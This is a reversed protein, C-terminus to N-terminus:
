VRNCRFVHLEYRDVEGVKWGGINQNFRSAGSFMSSMDTVTSVDWSGIFRNFASASEFMFSMDTVEGVEWDRINQNFETAGSFMFSMDTVKDVDWGGINQNFAPAFEFMFSMDTVKDVDWGGINQNFMSAGSFMFRMNTVNDVDWGGINQNFMSAGSFMSSMDTVNDVDWDGIDGNFLVARQFMHSMDTVQSLDPTDKATYYRLNECGFFASEMSDWRNNGWQDISIIKNRDVGNNFYIRPFDGTITVKYSTTTAPTSYIHTAGITSSTYTKTDDSDDGWNVTYRYSSEAHIPITIINNDTDTATNPEIQWTTIFADSLVTVTFTLEAVAQTQPNSDTVRYTLTVATATTSPIGTLMATATDTTFSLGDPIDGILEYSLPAFGGTAPPLSLTVTSGVNYIYASAPAPITSTDFTLPAVPTAMVATSPDSGGESNRAIVTVSYVFGNPVNITCSTATAGNATCAFTNTTAGVTATAEARYSISLGGTDPGSLATWRITINNDGAVASVGTPTVPVVANVKLNFDQFATVGNRDEVTYRLLTGGTGGFPLAPVGSITRVATDSNFTLGSPLISPSLMYSLPATGGSAAPLQYSVFDRVAYEVLDPIPITGEFTPAPNVTVTFTQSVMTQMPTASDTVTYTLTVTAAETTPTGTLMRTNTDFNLWMPTETLRYTVAGIGGNAYPLTLPVEEQGATFTLPSPRPITLPADNDRVTLTLIAPTTNNYNGGLATHTLAAIDQVADDDEAAMVTVTRASNWNIATFTLNNPSTTVDLNDSTITVTVEATPPANLVVTYTADTIGEFVIMSEPNLIIIPIFLVQFAVYHSVSDRLSILSTETDSDIAVHRDTDSPTATWYAGGGDWNAPTGQAERLTRFEIITPLVLTYRDAVIVSRKDDSGDHMRGQTDETDQGNNLLDDLLQHNLRDAAGAQGDGDHDLHYYIKDDATVPFILRLNIGSETGLDLINPLTQANTKTTALTALILAALVAILWRRTSSPNM